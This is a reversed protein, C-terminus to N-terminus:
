DVVEKYISSNLHRFRDEFNEIVAVVETSKAYNRSMDQLLGTHM